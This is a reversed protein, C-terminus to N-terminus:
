TGHDVLLYVAMATDLLIQLAFALVAILLSTLVFDSHPVNQLIWISGKAALLVGGAVILAFQERTASKLSKRTKTFDVKSDDDVIQRMRTLIVGTTTANIAMLAILLLLLNSELFRALYDSDALVFIANAALGIVICVCATALSRIM